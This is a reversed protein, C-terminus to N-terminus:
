AEFARLDRIRSCLLFQFLMADEAEFFHFVHAGRTEGALDQAHEAMLPDEPFTRADGESRVLVSYFRMRQGDHLGPMEWAIHLVDDLTTRRALDMVVVSGLVGGKFMLQAGWEQALSPHNTLVYLPLRSLPIIKFAVHSRKRILFSQQVHRTMTLPEDVPRLRHLDCIAM